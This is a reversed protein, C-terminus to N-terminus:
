LLVRNLDLICLQKVHRSEAVQEVMERSIVIQVEETGEEASESLKRRQLLGCENLAFAIDEVRLYTVQSIDALTCQSVVHTTASGDPNPTSRLGRLQRFLVEDEAKRKAVYPSGGVVDPDLEGDWGKNNIKKRRLLRAVDDPRAQSSSISETESSDGARPSPSKYIDSPSVCLLRRFFRVLTAVWYSLYSKLGLDSLPREPTGM